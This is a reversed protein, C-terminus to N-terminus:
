SNFRFYMFNPVHLTQHDMSLIQPPTLAGFTTIHLVRLAKETPYAQPLDFSSQM